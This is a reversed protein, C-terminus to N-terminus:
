TSNFISDTLVQSDSMRANNALRINLITTVFATIIIVIFLLVLLGQKIGLITKEEWPEYVSAVLISDQKEKNNMKNDKNNYKSNMKNSKLEDALNGGHYIMSDDWNDVLQNTFTMPPNLNNDSVQRPDQYSSGYVGKVQNNYKIGKNWQDQYWQDYSSILPPGSPSLDTSLNSPVSDVSYVKISSLKGDLNYLALDNVSIPGEIYVSNQDTQFSDGDYLVAITNKGVILSKIQGDAIGSKNNEESALRAATYDGDRLNKFNGTFNYNSYVTVQAGSGWNSARFRQIKISNIQDNFLITSLDPIDQPGIIVRNNGSKNATSSSSIVVIMNRAIRLSSISSEFNDNYISRLYQRTYEGPEFTHSEGNYNTDIYATVSM